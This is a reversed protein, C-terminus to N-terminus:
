EYLINVSGADFADTGNVTTIRLRDLAGSLTKSGGGAIFALGANGYSGAHSSVWTNGSINCLTIVGHRAASAGGGGSAEFLFGATSGATVIGTGGISASSDYGTTEFSGSGVQILLLSTGNTSVGTLMITIRKAWSPIGTFDKATGSTTAQATAQVRAQPLVPQSSFTKTGAITENGTLSVKAALQAATVGEATM